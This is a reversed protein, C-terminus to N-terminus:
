FYKKIKFYIVMGIAVTIMAGIVIFYGFHTHLEPMNDFNMGYVGAIFSLPIFISSMITLTKMVENMKNNVQAHYTEVLSNASERHMDLTDLVRLVHDHLDSFFPKNGKQFFSYNSRIITHLIDNLPAIMRKIQLLDKRWKILRLLHQKEPNANLPKEIKEIEKYIFEETNFYQDIVVDLLQFLLYDEGRKRINVRNEELKKEVLNMAGSIHEEFSIILNDKVFFSLQQSHIVHNLFFMKMVIFISNEMEDIKPRQVPHLIDEVMLPHIGFQQGINQILMENKLGSVHIWYNFGTECVPVINIESSKQFTEANYKYVTVVSNPNSD